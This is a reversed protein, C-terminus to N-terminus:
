VTQSEGSVFNLCEEIAKELENAGLLGGIRKIERGGSFFIFTPTVYVQYKKPSEENERMNLKSFVARGGYKKALRSFLPAMEACISCWPDWFEVVTLKDQSRLFEELGKDNCEIIRGTM